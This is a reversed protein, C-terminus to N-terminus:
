PGRTQSILTSMFYSREWTVKQNLEGLLRNFESGSDIDKSSQGNQAHTRVETENEERELHKGSLMVDRNEIDSLM